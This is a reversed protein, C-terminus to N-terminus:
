DNFIMFYSKNGTLYKGGGYEEHLNNVNLHASFMKKKCKKEREVEKTKQLFGSVFVLVQSVNTPWADTRVFENHM